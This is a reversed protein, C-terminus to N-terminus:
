EFHRGVPVGSAVVVSAKGESQALSAAREVEDETRLVPYILRDQFVTAVWSPSAEEPTLWDALSRADPFAEAVSAGAAAGSLALEQAALSATAREADLVRLMQRHCVHLTAVLPVRLRDRLDVGDPWVDALAM